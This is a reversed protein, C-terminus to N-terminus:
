PVDLPAIGSRRSSGLLFLVSTEQMAHRAYGPPALPLGTDGQLHPRFHLNPPKPPSSKGGFGGVCGPPSKDRVEDWM